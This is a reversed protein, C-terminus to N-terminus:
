PYSLSPLLLLPQHIIYYKVARILARCLLLPKVNHSRCCHAASTRTNKKGQRRRRDSTALQEYKYTFSIKSDLEWSTLFQRKPITPRTLRLKKGFCWNKIYQFNSEFIKRKKKCIPGEFFLTQSPFFINFILFNFMFLNFLAIHWCQSQYVPIVMVVINGYGKGFGSIQRFIVVIMM